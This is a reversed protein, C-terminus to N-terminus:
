LKYSVLATEIDFSFSDRINKKEVPEIEKNTTQTSGQKSTTAVLCLTKPIPNGTQPGTPTPKRVPLKLSSSAPKLPVTSSTSPISSKKM